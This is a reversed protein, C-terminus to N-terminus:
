VWSHARIGRQRLADFLQYSGHLGVRAVSGWYKQMPAFASSVHYKYFFEDMLQSIRSDSLLQNVFMGEIQASFLLFLTSKALDCRPQNDRAAHQLCPLSMLIDGPQKMTRGTVRGQEAM